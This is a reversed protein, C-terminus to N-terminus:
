KLLCSSMRCELCVHFVTLNCSLQKFVDFYFTVDLYSECDTLAFM